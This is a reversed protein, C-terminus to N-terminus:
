RRHPTTEGSEILSLIARAAQPGAQSWEHRFEKARVVLEEMEGSNAIWHKLVRILQATRKVALGLGHRIVFEVNGREQGPLPSLIILPKQAVIAEGITVAGAKGIVVDVAEMLLHINDQFGLVRCPVTLSSRELKQRLADNRGCAVILRVPLQARSIAQAAPLIAGAGEGGGTLFLTLADKQEAIQGTQSSDPRDRYFRGDVPLGLLSICQPPIGRARLSDRVEETPAIYLSVEPAIWATHAEDLDTVVTILLTPLRTRKLSEAIIQNCLPHVCILATPAHRQLLHAMPNSSIKSVLARFFRCFHGNNSLSYIVGWLWPYSVIISAYLLLPKCIWTEQALFDVVDVTM